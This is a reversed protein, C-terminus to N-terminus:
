GALPTCRRHHDVVSRLEFLKKHQTSIIHYFKNLPVYIYPVDESRRFLFHALIMRNVARHGIIMINDATASLYLAKKLGKNIRTQMTRYGEGEPYIYNYKDKGRASAIEPYQAKIEEYSMEECIGADIEDFEPLPIIQCGTKQKAMIPEATQYTRKKQSCFIYPLHIDQFYEGLKEAQRLGASTLPANGGIRDKTNDESEGHRILYLNNVSDTLLLDRIQDSFPIPDTMQTDIIRNNFSDLRIYNQETALPCYIKKYYDIRQAFYLYAEERTLHQFEPLTMKKAISAELIDPENNLCEIFLIPTKSLKELVLERRKRSVHTADLIAIKGIKNLYHLAKHINILAIKERLVSAQKNKSDYFQPLTSNMRTILKRRLDGNNFIEIPIGDKCLTDKIRRALTSKGRAPLGMFVICLRLSDQGAM